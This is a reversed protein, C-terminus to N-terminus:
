TSSLWLPLKAVSTLRVLSYLLLRSTLKMSDQNWYATPHIFGKRVWEANPVSVKKWKDQSSLKMSCLSDHGFLLPSCLLCYSTLAKSDPRHLSCKLYVESAYRHKNRSDEQRAESVFFFFFFRLSLFFFQEDDSTANLSMAKKDERGGEATFWM